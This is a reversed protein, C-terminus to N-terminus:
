MYGMERLREEIIVRDEPELPRVLSFTAVSVAKKGWAVKEWGREHLYYFLLKLVVELAGVEAALALEGTFLYVLSTTTLTAIVRWIITKVVSRWAKDQAVVKHVQADSVVREKGQKSFLGVSFVATRAQNHLAPQWGAGIEWREYV